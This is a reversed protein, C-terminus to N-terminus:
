GPSTSILLTSGGQFRSRPITQSAGYSSFYFILRLCGNVINRKTVLWSASVQQLLQRRGMRRLKLESKMFPMLCMFVGKWQLFPFAAVMLQAQPLPSRNFSCWLFHMLQGSIGTFDAAMPNFADSIGLGPLVSRLSFKNQMRFRCFVVCWACAQFTLINHLLKNLEGFWSLLYLKDTIYVCVHSWFWLPNLYGDM